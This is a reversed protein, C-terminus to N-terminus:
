RASRAGMFQEIVQEILEDDIPEQMLLFQHFIPGTLTTAAAACDLDPALDGREKAQDLVDITPQVMGQVFRRQAAVFAGDRLAHDVLAAFVPRVERTVLRTRLGSLMSALDTRLDGSSAMSHHPAVLADITALMLSPQDPWQRYITTRAVGTEEAIRNATVEGAGGTLLLEIAADLMVKRM